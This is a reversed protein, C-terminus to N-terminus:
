PHVYGTEPEVMIHRTLGGGALSLDLRAFSSVPPTDGVNFPKGLANFYFAPNVPSAAYSIGAPIAECLWAANNNCAALTAASGTNKGAPPVVPSACAGSVFPSFCFAISTGDLRVHVNRNQAIAIKQAYRMMSQAQDYFGRADFTQRDFFRPLAVAALIGMIILVSILEVLTFGAERINAAENEM